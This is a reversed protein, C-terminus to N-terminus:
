GSKPAPGQVSPQIKSLAAEVSKIVGDQLIVHFALERSLEELPLWLVDIQYAADEIVGPERYPELLETVFLHTECDRWVGDWFFVYNLIRASEKVTRVRFGTEELAERECARAASEGVEIGGGPPTLFEAGSTPDKLRVILIKGQSLCVAATRIRKKM